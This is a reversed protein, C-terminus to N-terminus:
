AALMHDRSRHVTFVVIRSGPAVTRIRRTAELGNLAPMTIDMIVVDPALKKALKVASEGDGAEAVVKFERDAEPICRVGERVLPHDDAVLIRLTRGGKAYRAAM